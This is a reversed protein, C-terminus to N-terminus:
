SAELNARASFAILNISMPDSVGDFYKDLLRHFVSDGTSVHAFLTACSRLKLDDPTAFIERATRNEIGLAAKGCELLRPGLVPHALYARAEDVSKIGYLVATSSSGLGSLQPFIYWMWHSRKRGDRIESLASFYTNRQAEVFRNLDCPDDSM